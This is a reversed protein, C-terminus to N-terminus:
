LEVRGNIRLTELDFRIRMQPGEVPTDFEFVLFSDGEGVIPEGDVLRPFVFKAGVLPNQPPFYEALPVRPHRPTTLYARNKMTETTGTQFFQEIRAQERPNNCRFTVSIVIWDRFLTDEGASDEGSASDGTQLELLRRYARRVPRASFLRVYYTSFIEKEGQVGSGVGGVVQTTTDKAVWPSNTLIRLCEERTWDTEPKAWPQDITSTWSASGVAALCVLLPLWGQRDM